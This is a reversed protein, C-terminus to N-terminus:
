RLVSRKENTKLCRALLARRKEVMKEWGDSEAIGHVALIDNYEKMKADEDYEIIHADAVDYTNM